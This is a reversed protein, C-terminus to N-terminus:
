RLTKGFESGIPITNREYGCGIESYSPTGDTNESGFFELVPGVALILDCYMNLVKGGSCVHPLLVGLLVDLAM